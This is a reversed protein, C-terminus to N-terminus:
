SFGRLFSSVINNFIKGQELNVLHGAGEIEHFEAHPLKDAMKKMTAAPSNTDESGAVLCVPCNIDMWEQRRSFTVLCALVQRYVDADLAAMSNTADTITHQETNSGVISPIAAEAIQEMTRGDDLPALRAKLFAGKFSNDRGGFATTTAVLILSKVKEPYRHFMEQAIMGGISQGMIHVPGCALADILKEVSGALGEFSLQDVNASERYGPMNWVVVRYRGALHESQPAFSADDGGIGHLCVITQTLENATAPESVLCDIGAIM